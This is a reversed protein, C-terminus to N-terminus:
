DDQADGYGLQSAGSLKTSSLSKVSLRGRRVLEFVLAAGKEGFDQEVAQMASNVTLGQRPLLRMVERLNRETLVDRQKNIYSLMLLYNEYRIPESKLFDIDLIECLFSHDDAYNQVDATTCTGLCSKSVVLISAHNNEFALAVPIRAKDLEIFRQNVRVDSVWPDFEVEAFRWLTPRCFLSVKENQKHSFVVFEPAGAPRSPHSLPDM